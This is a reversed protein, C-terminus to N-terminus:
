LTPPPIQSFCFYTCTRVCSCVLNFESAAVADNEGLGSQRSVNQPDSASQVNKQRECHLLASLVCIIVCCVVTICAIAVCGISLAIIFKIQGDGIASSTESTPAPSDYYLISGIFQRLSTVEGSLRQAFCDLTLPLESLVNCSPVGPWNADAPTLGLSTNVGGGLARKCDPSGCVCCHSVNHAILPCTEADSNNAVLCVTYLVETDPEPYVACYGEKGVEVSTDLDQAPNLFYDSM